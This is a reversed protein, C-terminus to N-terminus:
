IKAPTHIKAKHTARQAAKFDAQTVEVLLVEECNHCVVHFAEPDQIPRAVTQRYGCCECTVIARM